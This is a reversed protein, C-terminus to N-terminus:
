GVGSIEPGPFLSGLGTIEVRATKTPHRTINLHNKSSVTLQIRQFEMPAEGARTERNDPSASGQQATVTRYIVTVQISYSTGRSM